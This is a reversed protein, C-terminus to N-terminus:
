KKKKKICKEKEIKKEKRKRKREEKEKVLDNKDKLKQELYNKVPTCTIIISPLKARPKRTINKKATPLEPLNQLKNITPPLIVQLGDATSPGPRCITAYDITNPTLSSDNINNEIVLPRDTTASAAFDQDQFIQSNFPEIGCSKFGSIANQM